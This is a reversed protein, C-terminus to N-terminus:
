DCTTVTANQSPEFCLNDSYHYLARQYVCLYRFVDVNDNSGRRFTQKIGRLKDNDNMYIYIIYIYICTCKYVLWIIGTYALVCSGMYLPMSWLNLCIVFQSPLTKQSTAIQSQRLKHPNLDCNRLNIVFACSTVTRLVYFTNVNDNLSKEFAEKTSQKQDYYNMYMSVYTYVMWIVDFNVFVCSRMNTRITHVPIRGLIYLVNELHNSDIYWLLANIVFQSLIVFQLPLIKQDTAIHSQRFKQPNLVYSKM